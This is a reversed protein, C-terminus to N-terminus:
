RDMMKRLEIKFWYRKWWNYYSTLDNKINFWCFKKKFEDRPVSWGKRMGNEDFEEPLIDYLSNGAADSTTMNNIFCDQGKYIVRDM